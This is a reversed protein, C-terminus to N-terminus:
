SFYVNTNRYLYPLVIEDMAILWTHPEVPSLLAVRVDIPAIIDAGVLLTNIYFVISSRIHHESVQLSEKVFDIEAIEDVINESLGNNLFSWWLLDAFSIGSDKNALEKFSKGLNSNIVASVREKTSSM